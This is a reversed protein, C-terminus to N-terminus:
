PGEPDDKGARTSLSQLVAFPNRREPEPSEEETSRHRRTPDLQGADPRDCDDHMPVLPLDMLLEDEVLEILNFNRSSVLVDEDSDEDLEAALAETDVFHFWRDVLLNTVMPQLCRQCTQQLSAQAELHIWAGGQSQGSAATKWQGIAKWSVPHAAAGAPADLNDGPQEQLREFESPASEGVLTESARCFAEIDLHRPQFSKKKM